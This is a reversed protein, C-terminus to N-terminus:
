QGNRFREPIQPVSPPPGPEAEDEDEEMEDLDEPHALLDKINRMEYHRKRQNEFIRHKEKAEETTISGEDGPVADGNAGTGVHVHKESKQSENSMSRQRYVRPDQTSNDVEHAEEPEGLELDPIEDESVGKRHAPKGKDLEDVVIDQADLLANKADEFQMEEDDEAPDYHPAYPTKPEDIKMKATREQETLYLNAEDWKLRPSNDDDAMSAGSQRRSAQGTQSASSRRRPGANQLTNQLTLDKTDAPEAISPPVAPRDMEAIPVNQFSRSNKLIGKPRHHVNDASYAKAPMHQATTM